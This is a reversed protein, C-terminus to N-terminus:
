AETAIAAEQERVQARASRRMPVERWLVSGLLGVLMVAAVLLFVLHLAGGLSARIAALVLDATDPANPFAVGLQDRLAESASPNLVSQPDRLGAGAPSDLWASVADPLGAHLGGLFRLILISGFLASGLTSGMSRCFQNLSTAVGLERFEVASQYSLTLTPFIMGIAVGLWTLSVALLFYPAEPGLSSLM